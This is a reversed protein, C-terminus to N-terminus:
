GQAAGPQQRQRAPDRGHGARARRGLAAPQDRAAHGGQPEVPAGHPGRQRRGASALADAAQWRPAASRGGGLESVWCKGTLAPASQLVLDTYCSPQRGLLGACGREQLGWSLVRPVRSHSQPTRVAVASGLSVPSLAPASPPRVLARARAAPPGPAGTALLDRGPLLGLCRVGARHGFLNEQRARGGYAAQTRVKRGYRAQWTGGAALPCAPAAWRQEYFASWAQARM